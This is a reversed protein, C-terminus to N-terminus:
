AHRRAPEPDSRAAPDLGQAGFSARSVDGAKAVIERLRPWNRSLARLLSARSAEFARDVFGIIEELSESAKPASAPAHGGGGIGAAKAQARHARSAQQREREDARYDDIERRRRARALKRDRAARCAAGCVRQTSRARPSPSFRCGCESCRKRTLM